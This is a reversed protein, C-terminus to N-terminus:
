WLRDESLFCFRSLITFSLSGFHNLVSASLLFALVSFFLVFCSARLVSCSARLVFCSARLMGYYRYDEVVTDYKEGDQTFQLTTTIPQVELPVPCIVSLPTEYQGTM